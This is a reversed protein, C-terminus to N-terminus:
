RHPYAADLKTGTLVPGFSNSGVGMDNRGNSFAAHVHCVICGKAMFLDHGYQEPSLAAEEVASLAHIVGPTGSGAGPMPAPLAAAATGGMGILTVVAWGGAQVLSASAMLLM